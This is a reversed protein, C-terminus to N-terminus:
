EAVEAAPPKRQSSKKDFKKRSPKPLMARLKETRAQTKPPPGELGEILVPNFEPGLARWIGMLDATQKTKASAGKPLTPVVGAVRALGTERLFACKDPVNNELVAKELAHMESETLRVMVCFRKRKNDDKALAM